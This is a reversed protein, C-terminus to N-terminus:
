FFLCILGGGGVCFQCVKCLCCQPALGWGYWGGRWWRGGRCWLSQWPAVAFCCSEAALLRSTGLAALGFAARLKGPPTPEASPCVTACCWQGAGQAGPLAGLAAPALTGASSGPLVLASPFPVPICPVPVPVPRPAAHPPTRPM